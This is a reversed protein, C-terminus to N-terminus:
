KFSVKAISAFKYFSFDQHWSKDFCPSLKSKAFHDAVYKNALKIGNSGTSRGELNESTLFQLHEEIDKEENAQFGQFQILGLPIKQM